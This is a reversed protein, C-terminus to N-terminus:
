PNRWFATLFEQENKYITTDIKNKIIFDLWLHELADVQKIKGTKYKEVLVQVNLWNNSIELIVDNYKIYEPTQPEQQAVQPGFFGQFIHQRPDFANM